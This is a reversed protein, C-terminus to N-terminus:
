FGEDQELTLIAKNVRPHLELLAVLFDGTEAAAALFTELITGDRAPLRLHRSARAQVVSLMGDHDFVATSGVDVPPVM